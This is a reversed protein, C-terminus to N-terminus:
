ARETPPTVAPTQQSYQIAYHMLAANDPLGLKHQINARHASITKISRKLKDAINRSSFGMGILELVLWETRTLLTPTPTPNSSSQATQGQMLGRLLRTRMHKSVFLDGGVLTRIAGILVEASQNKMLYGHAGAQLCKEAHLHEDHMSFILLRAAPLQRRLKNLLTIGSTESLSLDLIVVEPQRQAALVLAEQETAAQASVELDPQANIVAALGERMIPHDDVIMVGHRTVNDM